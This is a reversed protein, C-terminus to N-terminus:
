QKQFFPYNYYMPNGSRKSTLWAAWYGFTGVTMIMDDCSSMLVFDETLTTLNSIYVNPKQLHQGCWKKTDSEVIFVVHKHKSEMFNMANHIERSISSWIETIQKIGEEWM